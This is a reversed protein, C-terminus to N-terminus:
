EGDEVPVRLITGAWVYKYKRKQTARNIKRVNGNVDVARRRKQVKTRSKFKGCSPSRSCNSPRQLYSPSQRTVTADFGNLPLSELDKQGIKADNRMEESFSCNEIDAPNEPQCDYSRTPEVPVIKDDTVSSKSDPGFSSVTPITMTPSKSCHEGRDKTSHRSKGETKSDEFGNEHVTPQKATSHISIVQSTGNPGFSSVTQIAMEPSTSCQGDKEMSSQRYMGERESDQFGNEHVAPRIAPANVVVMPSKEVRGLSSVTSVTMAPSTFYQEGCNTKSHRDTEEPKSVQFKKKHVFSQSASQFGTATSKGDPSSSSVTSTVVAAPKSYQESSEIKYHRDRGIRKTDQIVKKHIPPQIPTAQIDFAPSKSNQGSSFVTVARSEVDRQEGNCKTSLRVSGEKTHEKLEFIPETRLSILKVIRLLMNQRKQM